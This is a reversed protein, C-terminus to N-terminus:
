LAGFQLRCGLLLLEDFSYTRKRVERTKETATEDKPHESVVQQEMMEEWQLEEMELLM